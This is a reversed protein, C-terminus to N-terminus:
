DNWYIVYSVILNSIGFLTFVKHGLYGCQFIRLFKYSKLIGVWRCVLGLIQILSCTFTSYQLGNLSKNDLTSERYPLSVEIWLIM